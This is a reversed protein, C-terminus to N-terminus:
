GAAIGSKLDCAAHLSRSVGRASANSNQRGAQMVLLFCTCVAAIILPCAAYVVTLYAIQHERQLGRKWRTSRSCTRLYMQSMQLTHVHDKLSTSPLIPFGIFLSLALHYENPAIEVLLDNSFAKLLASDLRSITHDNSCTLFRYRYLHQYEHYSRSIHMNNPDTTSAM